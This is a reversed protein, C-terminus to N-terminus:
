FAAVVQNRGSHKALYLGRDAAKMLHNVDPANPAWTSTGISVTLQGVVPIEAAQVMVRIREAVAVATVEDSDCLICLFEEGGWRCAVDAHRMALHLVESVAKIAMDGVDHGHTDNVSKFHDIDVMLISYPSRTQIANEHSNLLIKEGSRRNHLGTMMDRTAMRDLSGIAKEIAHEQGISCNPQSIIKVAFPCAMKIASSIENAGFIHHAITAALLADGAGLTHNNETLAVPDIHIERTSSAYIVGDRDCSIIVPCGLHSALATPATTAFMNRGLYLSERRNMFVGALQGRIGAVRLSKEESVCAVFVPINFENAVLVFDNLSAISLNCELIACDAGRMLKKIADPTFDAMEVPMSSVASILEGDTGIHASFVAAPMDDHHTIHVDVGHARLHGAIVDSYASIAQMATMLRTKIGMSALNVAINCATGGIEIAVGGMRDITASDGQAKALVDLHASGAVFVRGTYTKSEVPEDASPPEDQPGRAASHIKERLTMADGTGGPSPSISKEGYLNSM